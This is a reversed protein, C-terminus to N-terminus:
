KTEKPPMLPSARLMALWGAEWDMSDLGEGEESSWSLVDANDGAIQMEPTVTELTRIVESLAARIPGHLDVATKNSDALFVWLPYGNAMPACIARRAAREVLEEYGSM